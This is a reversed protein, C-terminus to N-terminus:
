YRLRPDQGDPYVQRLNINIRHTNLYTEFVEQDEVDSPSSPLLVPPVDGQHNTWPGLLFSTVGIQEQPSVQITPSPLLNLPLTRAMAHYALRAPGSLIVVDGPRVVFPVIPITPTTDKSSDGGGCLFLGPLHGLSVSIIPKTMDYELDDQHPGMVSKTHYYNVICASVTYEAFSSSSSPSTTTPPTTKGHDHSNNNTGGTTTTTTTTTTTFSPDTVDQEHNTIYQVTRALLTGLDQLITPVPSYADPSYTRQTWNYHYGMCAWSLNNFCRTQKKKNPPPLQPSSQKSSQQQQQQKWTNWM